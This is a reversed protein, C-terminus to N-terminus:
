SVILRACRGPEVSRSVDEVSPRLQESCDQTEAFILLERGVAALVGRRPQAPVCNGSATLHRGSRLMQWRCTKITAIREIRVIRDMQVDNRWSTPREMSGESVGAVTSSAIRM